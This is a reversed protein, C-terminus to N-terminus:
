IFDVYYKLLGPDLLNINFSEVDVSDVSRCSVGINTENLSETKGFTFKHSYFLSFIGILTWCFM